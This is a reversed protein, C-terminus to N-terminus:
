KPRITGIISFSREKSIAFYSTCSLVLLRGSLWKNRRNYFSCNVGPWFTLILIGVSFTSAIDWQVIEDVSHRFFKCGFCIYRWIELPLVCYSIENNVTAVIFNTSVVQLYVWLESTQEYLHAKMTFSSDNASSIAKMCFSIPNFSGTRWLKSLSTIVVHVPTNGGGWWMATGSSGGFLTYHM